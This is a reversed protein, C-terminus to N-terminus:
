DSGPVQAGRARPPAVWPKSVPVGLRSFQVDELEVIPLGIVVGIGSSLRSGNLKTEPFASHGGGGQQWSLKDAWAQKQEKTDECRIGGPTVLPAPPLPPGELTLHRVLAQKRLVSPAAQPRRDITDDAGPVIEMGDGGCVSDDETPATGDDEAEEVAEGRAVARQRTAERAAAAAQAATQKPKGPGDKKEGEDEIIPLAGTSLIFKGDPKLQLVAPEPKKKAGEEPEPGTLAISLGAPLVLNQVIYRGAPFRLTQGDRMAWLASQIALSDDTEGDGLAGADARADVEATTPRRPAAVAPM